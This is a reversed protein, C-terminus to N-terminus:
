RACREALPSAFGPRRGAVAPTRRCPVSAAQAAGTLNATYITKSM